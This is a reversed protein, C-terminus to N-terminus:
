SDGFKLQTMLERLSPTDEKEEGEKLSVIIKLRAGMKENILLATKLEDTGGREAVALLMKMSLMYDRMADSFTLSEFARRFEEEKSKKGASQEVVKKAHVSCNIIMQRVNADLNKEFFYEPGVGYYLSLRERNSSTPMSNGNEWNAVTVRNVGIASAVADQTAGYLERIRKLNNM